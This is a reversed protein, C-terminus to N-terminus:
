NSIDGLKEFTQVSIEYATKNEGKKTYIRSQIRGFIKIKQGIELDKISCAAKGWFILPIYDSRNYKRNVALLIDAIERGFPTQRYLPKKCIIGELTINNSYTNETLKEYKNLLVYLILHSKNESQKNYSRYTGYVKIFDGKNIDRKGAVHIPIIDETGSNRTIKLKFIYFDIGKCTYSLCPAEFVEGELITENM